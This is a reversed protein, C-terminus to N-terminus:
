NMNGYNIMEAMSGEPLRQGLSIPQQVPPSGEPFRQGLSIPQQLPSQHLQASSHEQTLPPKVQNPQDM